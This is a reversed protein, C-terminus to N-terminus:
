NLESIRCVTRDPTETDNEGHRTHRTRGKEWECAITATKFRSYKNSGNPRALIGFQYYFTQHWYSESTGGLYFKDGIAVQMNSFEQQLVSLGARNGFRSLANGILTDRFDKLNGKTIATYASGITNEPSSLDNCASLGLAAIITGLIILKNKM